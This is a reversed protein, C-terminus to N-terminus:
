IKFVAYESRQIHRISNSEKTTKLLTYACIRRIKRSSYPTNSTLVIIKLHRQKFELIRAKKSIKVLYKMIVFSFADCVENAFSGAVHANASKLYAILADLAKDQVIANSDSVTKKFLHGLECIRHDKPDIRSDKASGAKDGRHLNYNEFVGITIVICPDFVLRNLEQMSFLGEAVDFSLRVWVMKEMLAGVEKVNFKNLMTISSITSVLKVVLDDMVMYTVLGKVFGGGGVAGKAGGGGTNPCGYFKRAVLADDNALLIPRGTM